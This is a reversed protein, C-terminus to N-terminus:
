SADKFETWQKLAWMCADVYTPWEETRIDFMAEGTAVTAWWHGHSSPALAIFPPTLPVASM